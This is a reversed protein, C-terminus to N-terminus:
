KSTNEPTADAMWWNVAISTNGPPDSFPGSLNLKM